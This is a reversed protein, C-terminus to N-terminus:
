EEWELDKEECWRIAVSRHADDLFKYWQDSLGLDIVMDKFRRFAGRGSIARSLKDAASGSLTSIFREMTRYDDIDFQSPLRYFGHEDLQESLEECESRDMIEDNIMVIEGTERDLYYETNDDTFDIADIIESLQVKM